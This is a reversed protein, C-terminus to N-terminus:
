FPLDDADALIFHNIAANPIDALNTTMDFHERERDVVTEMLVVTAALAAALSPSAGALKRILHVISEPSPNAPKRFSLAIDPIAVVSNFIWLQMDCEGEPLCFLTRCSITGFDNWLDLMYCTVDDPLDLGHTQSSFKIM